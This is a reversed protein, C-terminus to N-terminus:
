SESERGALVFAIITMSSFVALGVGFEIVLIGYHQGHHGFSYYDLFNYGMLINIVGVGGYILVGLALFFRLVSMPLVRRARSIGFMMAYMIFGVAFLVGAQFGGGASYDGHFQVYLGFLMVIPIVYRVVAAAIWNDSMPRKPDLNFIM